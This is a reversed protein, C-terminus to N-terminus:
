AGPGPRRAPDGPRGPEPPEPGPRDRSIRRAIESITPAAYCATGKPVAVYAGGAPHLDYEQYLARFLRAPLDGRPVMIEIPLSFKWDRLQRVYFDRQQGDPGAATRQWGLFIDSAAQM